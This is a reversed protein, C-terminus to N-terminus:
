SCTPQAARSARSHLSGSSTRSRTALEKSGPRWAQHRWTRWSKGPLDLEALSFVGDEDILLSFTHLDEVGHAALIAAIAVSDIGGSLFLGLPRDTVACSLVSAEVARALEEPAPTRLGQGPKAEVKKACEVRGNRREVAVTAGPELSGLRRFPTEDYLRCGLGLYETLAGPGVTAAEPDTRWLPELESAFSIAGLATRLYLPKIGFHDRALLIRGRVLDALAIAYMGDLDRLGTEGLPAM